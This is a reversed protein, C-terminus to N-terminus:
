PTSYIGCTHTYRCYVPFPFLSSALLQSSTSFSDHRIFAMGEAQGEKLEARGALGIDWIIGEVWRVKTVEDTHGVM